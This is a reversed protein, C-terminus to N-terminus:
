DIQAGLFGAGRGLELGLRGRRAGRQAQGVATQSERQVLREVAGPAADAEREVADTERDLVPVARLAQVEDAVDIRVLFRAVLLGVLRAEEAAHERAVLRGLRTRFVADQDLAVAGG